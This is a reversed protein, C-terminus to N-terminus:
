YGGLLKQSLSKSQFLMIGSMLGYALMTLSINTLNIEGPKTLLEKYLSSQLITYIFVIFLIVFGQIGYSFVSKMFNVGSNNLTKNFLTSLAIPSIAVHLYLEIARSALVITVIIPIFRSVLSIIFTTFAFVAIQGFSQDKFYTRVLIEQKRLNEDNELREKYEKEKQKALEASAKIIDTENHESMYKSIEAYSTQSNDKFPASIFDWIQTLAGKSYDVKVGKQELSKEIFTYVDIKKIEKKQMKTASTSVITNAFGFTLNVINFSNYIIFVGIFLKAFFRLLHSLTNESYMNFESINNILDLFLFVLLVIIGFPLIASQTVSIVAEWVGKPLLADIGKFSEGKVTDMSTRLLDFVDSLSKLGWSILKGEINLLDM